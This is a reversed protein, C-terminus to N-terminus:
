DCLKMALDSLLDQLEETAVPKKFVKAAGLEKAMAEDVNSRSILVYVPLNACTTESKVWRLLDLGSNDNSGPDSVIARPFPYRQRDKYMGAGLLYAKAESNNRCVFADCGELKDFAARVLNATNANEEIILITSVQPAVTKLLIIKVGIPHPFVRIGPQPSLKPDASHV